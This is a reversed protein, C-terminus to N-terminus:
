CSLMFELNAYLSSESSMPTMTATIMKNVTQILRLLRTCDDFSDFKNEVM